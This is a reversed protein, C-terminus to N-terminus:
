NVNARSDFDQAVAGASDTVRWVLQPFPPDTDERLFVYEIKGGRFFENCAAGLARTGSPALEQYALQIGLCECGTGQIESPVRRGSGVGLATSGAIRDTEDVYYFADQQCDPDVLTIANEDCPAPDSDSIKLAAGETTTGPNHFLIQDPVPVQQGASSFFQDYTPTAGQAPAVASALGGRTAGGATQFRGQRHFYLLAPGEICFHGFAQSGGEPILTYGFAQYLAIDDPCVAGNPYTEGNVFAVFAVFYHVYDPSLNRMSIRVLKRSQPEQCPDTFGSDSGGIDAGTSRGSSGPGVTGSSGIIPFPSGLLYQFASGTGACGCVGLLAVLGLSVVVRAPVAARTSDLRHM